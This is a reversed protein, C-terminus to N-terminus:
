GSREENPMLHQFFQLNQAIRTDAPSLRLATEAAALAEAPNGLHYWALSALDYPLAGWAMPENIYIAPRERIRLASQCAFLVGAWNEERFYLFALEVYAERLLPAEAAARLLWRIAEGRNGLAEYARAIYRMSASREADWTARPLALHRLLTRICDEYRQYFLYERGLYHMNRDNEPDEAVSLELLPLYSGRSKTPDAHHQLTMGTVTRYREPASDTRVLIEHVANQWCYGHRAHIKDIWFVTGEQGGPLYNWVYRYRLRTSGQEWAREVADRWGPTFVEDLDTCVCIECDEPLRSLVANRASDFRWPSIREQWVTVGAEELLAVTDDESGTDLVYLRDAEAMSEAWRRAFAAENKSIAYVAVRYNGM